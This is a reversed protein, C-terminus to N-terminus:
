QVELFRNLLVLDKDLEEYLSDLKWNTYIIEQQYSERYRQNKRILKKTLDSLEKNKQSIDETTWDIRDQFLEIASDLLPNNGLEALITNHTKILNKICQDETLSPFTSIFSCSKYLKFMYKLIRSKVKKSTHPLLEKVRMLNESVLELNSQNIQVDSLNLLFIAEKNKNSTRVSEKIGSKILEEAFSFEKSRRFISILVPLEDLTIENKKYKVYLTKTITNLEKNLESYREQVSPQNNEQETQSFSYQISFYSTILLLIYPIKTKMRKGEILQTISCDLSIDKPSLIYSIHIQHYSKAFM